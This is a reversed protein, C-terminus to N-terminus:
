RSKKLYSFRNVWIVWLLFITGYIAAPFLLNHLVNEYQPYKYLLMSLAMIRVINVTYIILIGVTGFIITAGLSGAFAIIFSLFLIIISVSNCGEVIRATYIDGVFFKISLEEDHQEISTQYGLFNALQHSHEAVLKTIPACSFANGKQQTQKLYFSYAAVLVFYTIFFKLLFKIITKKRKM